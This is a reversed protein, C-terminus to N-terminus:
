PVTLVCFSTLVAWYLMSGQKLFLKTIVYNLALLLCTNKFGEGEGHFAERLLGHRSKEYQMCFSTM